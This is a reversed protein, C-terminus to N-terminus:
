NSIEPKEKLYTEIGITGGKKNYNVANQIINFTILQYLRWDAKMKLSELEYNKHIM